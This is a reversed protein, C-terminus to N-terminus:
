IPNKNSIECFFIMNQPIKPSKRLQGLGCHGFDIFFSAFVRELRLGKWRYWIHLPKTL